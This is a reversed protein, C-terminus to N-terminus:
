KFDDLKIGRAKLDDVLEHVLEAREYVDKAYAILSGIVEMPPNPSFEIIRNQKMQAYPPEVIGTKLYVCHQSTLLDAAQLAALEKDNGPIIEGAVAQVSPPWELRQREYSEICARLESCGDFVFDIKERRGSELSEFLVKPILAMFAWDYIRTGMFKRLRDPKEKLLEHPQSVVYGYVLSGGIVKALALKKAEADSRLCKLFEGDLTDAESSKFYKIAPKADLCAQWKSTFIEWQEVSALWGAMVFMIDLPNRNGEDFFGRFM